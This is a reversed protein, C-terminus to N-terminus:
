QKTEASTYPRYKPRPKYNGKGKEWRFSNGEVVLDRRANLKTEPEAFYRPASKRLESKLEEHGGQQALNNWENPDERVVEEEDDPDEESEDDGDDGPDHEKDTESPRTAFVKEYDEDTLEKQNRGKLIDKRLQM